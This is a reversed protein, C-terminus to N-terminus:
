NWREFMKPSAGPPILEIAEQAKEKAVTKIHKQEFTLESKKGHLNLHASIVVAKDLIMKDQNKKIESNNKRRGLFYTVISLLVSGVIGLIILIVDM